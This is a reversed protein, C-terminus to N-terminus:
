GPKAAPGWLAMLQQLEPGNPTTTGNKLKLGSKGMPFNTRIFVLEDSFAHIIEQRTKPSIKAASANGALALSSFALLFAFLKSSDSRIKLSWMGCGTGIPTNYVPKM